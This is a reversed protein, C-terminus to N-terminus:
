GIELTLLWYSLQQCAKAEWRCTYGRRAARVATCQLLLTVKQATGGVQGHQGRIRPFHTPGRLGCVGACAAAATDSETCHWGGAWTSRQHWSLTHPRVPWLSWCM